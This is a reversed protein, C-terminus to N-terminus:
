GKTPMIPPSRKHFLVAAAAVVLSAAWFYGGLALGTAATPTDMGPCGVHSPYLPASVGCAILLVSMKKPPAKISPQALWIWIFIIFINALWRPDLALIGMYGLFLIEYGLWSPRHCQFAPFFLSLAFFFESTLLSLKRLRNQDYYQNM